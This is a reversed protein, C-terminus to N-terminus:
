CGGRLVTGPLVRPWLASFVQGSPLVSPRLYNTPSFGSAMSVGGLLTHPQVLRGDRGLIAALLTTSISDLTGAGEM